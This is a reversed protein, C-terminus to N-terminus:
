FSHFMGVVVQRPDAGVGAVGSHYGGGWFNVDYASANTTRGYTTYVATRKSLHHRVGIMIQTANTNSCANAASCGTINSHKGINLFPITNGFRHEWDFGWAQQSVNSVTPDIGAVAANNSQKVKLWTLSVQATPNYNWGIRLKQGTTEGTAGAAPSNSRNSLIDGGLLINGISGDVTINWLRGNPNAGAATTEQNGPSYSLTANFGGWTPTLYQVTNNYRIPLGTDMGRGFTSAVGLLGNPVLATDYQLDGNLWWVNQKGLTLKGWPGKLGLIGLRSALTGAASSAGGYQTTNGGTDMFVGNEIQFLASMGNGLNEEGRVGIRSYGDYVRYRSKQDFASGATAGTNSYNDIGVNVRGYIQVNSAQALVTAPAALAGAVAVVMLKKNM